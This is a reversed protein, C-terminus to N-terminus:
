SLSMTNLNKKEEKLNCVTNGGNTAGDRIFAGGGGGGGEWGLLM